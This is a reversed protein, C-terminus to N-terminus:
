MQKNQKIIKPKKIWLVEVIYKTRTYYLISCCLKNNKCKEDYKLFLKSTKRIM